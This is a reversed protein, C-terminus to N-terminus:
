FVTLKNEILKKDAYVVSVSAHFAIWLAWFAQLRM